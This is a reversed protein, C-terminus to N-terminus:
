YQLVFVVDLSNTNVFLYEEMKKNETAYIQWEATLNVDMEVNARIRQKWQELDEENNPVFNKIELLRHLDNSNIKFRLVWFAADMAILRGRKLDRVSEPTPKMVLKEFTSRPSTAAYRCVLAAIVLIAIPCNLLFVQKLLSGSFHRRRIVNHFAWQLLLQPILLIACTIAGSLLAWMTRGELNSDGGIFYFAFAGIGTLTAGVIFVALNALLKTKDSRKEIM